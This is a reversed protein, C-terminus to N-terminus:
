RILQWGEFKLVNAVWASVKYNVVFCTVNQKSKPVKLTFKKYAVKKWKQKGM